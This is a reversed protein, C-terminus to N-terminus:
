NDVKGQGQRMVPTVPGVMRRGLQNKEAASTGITSVKDSIPSGTTGRKQIDSPAPRMYPKSTIHKSKM